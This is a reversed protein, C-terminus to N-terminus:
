SSRLINHPVQLNPLRDLGFLRQRTNYPVTIHKSYPAAHSVAATAPDHTSDPQSYIAVSEAISKATTAAPVPPKTMWPSFAFSLEPMATDEAPSMLPSPKSSRTM